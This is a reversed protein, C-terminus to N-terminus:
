ADRKRRRHKWAVPALALAALAMLPLLTRWEFLVLPSIREAEALDGLRNGLSAVIFSVPILGLFTAGGVVRLRIPFAVPVLNVLWAPLVPLLRAALLYAFGNDAVEDEIKRFHHGFRAHILDFLIVRGVVAVLLASLAAGAAALLAGPVVGFLFGGALMIAIGGPFPTVKGLAALGLFALAGWVPYAEVWLSVATSSRALAALVAHGYTGLAWFVVIAALLGVLTLWRRRIRRTKRPGETM